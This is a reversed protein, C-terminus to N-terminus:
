PIRHVRMTCGRLITISTGSSESGAQFQITGANGGLTITATARFPLVDNTGSTEILDQGFATAVVVTRVAATTTYHEISYRVHAPSAPGTFAIRMGSGSANGAHFGVIEILLKENAAVECALGSVNGSVGTSNTFDAGLMYHETIARAELGDVRMDLGSIDDDVSSKFTDGCLSAHLHDTSGPLYDNPLDCWTFEATGNEANGSSGDGGNAGAGAGGDSGGAGGTGGAGPSRSIASFYCGNALLEPMDSGNGGGGGNGGATSETGPEGPLGAGGAGGTMTLDIAVSRDSQLVLKAPRDGNGPSAVPDAPTGETGNWDIALSSQGKGLGRVFLAIEFVSGLASTHEISYSGYGLEFVYAGDDFAAQATLYPLGPNGIAGTSDNGGSNVWAVNPIEISGGGEPTLESLAILDTWTAVGVYRWQIHTTNTRLEVERGDTGNTGNTGNTGPPGTIASLAILDTWSTAGV